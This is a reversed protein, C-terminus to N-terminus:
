ILLDAYQVFIVANLEAYLQELNSGTCNVPRGQGLKTCKDFKGM